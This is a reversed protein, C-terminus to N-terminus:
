SPTEKIKVAVQSITCDQMSHSPVPHLSNCCRAVFFSCVTATRGVRTKVKTYSGSLSLPSVFIIEMLGQSFRYNSGLILQERGFLCSWLLLLKWSIPLLTHGALVLSFGRFEILINRLYKTNKKVYSTQHTWTPSQHVFQTQSSSLKTVRWNSHCKPHIFFLVDEILLNVFYYLKVDLYMTFHFVPWKIVPTIM